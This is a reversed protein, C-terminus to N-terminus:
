QPSLDGFRPSTREFSWAYPFDRRKLIDDLCKAMEDYAFGHFSATAKQDTLLVGQYGAKDHQEKHFEEVIQSLDHEFRTRGKPALGEIRLLLADLVGFKMKKDPTKDYSWRCGVPAGAQELIHVVEKVVLPDDRKFAVSFHTSLVETGDESLVANQDKIVGLDNEKLYAAVPEEYGKALFPTPIRVNM